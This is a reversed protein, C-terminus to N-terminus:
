AFNAAYPQLEARALAFMPRNQEDVMQIRLGETTIDLLLQKKYQKLAPNSEILNEIKGKLKQLRESEEKAL